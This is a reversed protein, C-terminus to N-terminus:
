DPSLSSNICVKGTFYPVESLLVGRFGLGHVMQDKRAAVVSNGVNESATPLALAWFGSDSLRFELSCVGIGQVWRFGLGM